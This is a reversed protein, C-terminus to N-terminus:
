KTNAGTKARQRQLTLIRAIQRRVQGIRSPNAIKETTSQFRLKFMEDRLSKLDIELEKADKTRLESVRSLNDSAM